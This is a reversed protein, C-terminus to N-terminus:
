ESPQELPQAGQMGQSRDKFVTAFHPVIKNHWMEGRGFIGGELVEIGWLSESQIMRSAPLRCAASCGGRLSSVAGGPWPDSWWNVWLPGLSAWRMRRREGGASGSGQLGSRVSRVATRPGWCLGRFRHVRFAGTRGTGGAGVRVGIGTGMGSRAAAFAARVPVAASQLLKGCRAGCRAGCRPVITVRGSRVRVPVRVCVCQVTRTGMWDRRTQPDTYYDDEYGSKLGYCLLVGELRGCFDNYHDHGVFAGKLRHQAFLRQLQGGDAGCAIADRKHGSM